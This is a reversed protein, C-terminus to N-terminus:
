CRRLTNSLILTIYFSIKFDLPWSDTYDAYDTYDTTSYIVKVSLSDGVESVHTIRTYHCYSDATHPKEM